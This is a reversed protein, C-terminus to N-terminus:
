CFEWGLLCLPFWFINFVLVCIYVYIVDMHGYESNEEPPECSLELVLEIRYIKLFRWLIFVYSWDMAVHHLSQNFKCYSTLHHIFYSTLDWWTNACECCEVSWHLIISKCISKTLNLTQLLLKVVANSCFRLWGNEHDKMVCKVWLFNYGVAALTYVPWVCECHVTQEM